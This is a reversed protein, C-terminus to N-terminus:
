TAKSRVTARTCAACSAPKLTRYPSPLLFFTAPLAPPAPRQSPRAGTCSGSGFSRRALAQAPNGQM